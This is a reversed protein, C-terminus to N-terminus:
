RKHTFPSPIVRIEGGHTTGVAPVERKDLKAKKQKKKEELKNTQQTMRGFSVAREPSWVLKQRQQVPASRKTTAAGACFRIM